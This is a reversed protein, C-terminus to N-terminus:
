TKSASLFKFYTRTAPHLFIYLLIKYMAVQQIQPITPTQVFNYPLKFITARNRKHKIFSMNTFRDVGLQKKNYTADMKMSLKRILLRSSRVDSFSTILHVLHRIRRFSFSKLSQFEKSLCISLIEKHSKKTLNCQMVYLYLFKFQKLMLLLAMEMKFLTSFKFKTNESWQNLM